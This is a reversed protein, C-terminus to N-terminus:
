KKKPPSPLSVYEPKVLLNDMINNMNHSFYTLMCLESCRLAMFLYISVYPLCIKAMYIMIWSHM